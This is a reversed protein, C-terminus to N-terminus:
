LYKDSNETKPEAMHLRRIRSKRGIRRTNETVDTQEWQVEASLQKGSTGRGVPVWEAYDQTEEANLVMLATVRTKRFHIPEKGHKEKGFKLVLGTFSGLCGM